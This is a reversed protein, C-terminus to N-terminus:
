PPDLGMASASFILMYGCHDCEMGVNSLAQSGMTLHVFDSCQHWLDCKCIPCKPMTTKIWVQVKQSDYPMHMGRFFLRDNYGFIPPTALPHIM